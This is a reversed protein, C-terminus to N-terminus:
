PPILWTISSAPPAVAIRGRTVGLTVLKGHSPKAAFGLGTTFCDHYVNRQLTSQGLTVSTARCFHLTM